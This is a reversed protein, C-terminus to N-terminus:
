GTRGEARLADGRGAFRGTLARLAIAMVNRHPPPPRRMSRGIRGDMPGSPYPRRDRCRRVRWCVPPGSLPRRMGPKRGSRAPGGCRTTDLVRFGDHRVAGTLSEVAARVLCAKFAPLSSRSVWGRGAEARRGQYVGFAPGVRVCGAARRGQGALFSSARRGGARIPFPCM